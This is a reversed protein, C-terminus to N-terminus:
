HGLGHVQRGLSHCQFKAPLARNGFHACINHIERRAITECQQATNGIDRFCQCHVPRQVPDHDWCNEIMKWIEDMLHPAEYKEPREPRTGKLVLDKVMFLQEDAWPVEGTFIQYYM